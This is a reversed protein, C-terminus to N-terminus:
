NALSMLAELDANAETGKKSSARQKRNVSLMDLWQRMQVGPHQRAQSIVEGNALQTAYVRLLNVYELAVMQICLEDLPTIDKGCARTVSEVCFTFHAHELDTMADFVAQPLPPYTLRPKRGRKTEAGVSATDLKLVKLTPSDSTTRAM